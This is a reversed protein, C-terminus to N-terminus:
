KKQKDCRLYNEISKKLEKEITVRDTKNLKPINLPTNGRYGPGHQKRLCNHKKIFKMIETKELISFRNDLLNRLFTDLEIYSYHYKHKSTRIHKMFDVDIYTNNPGRIFESRWPYDKIYEFYLDYLKKAENVKIDCGHSQLKGIFFNPHVKIDAKKYEYFFSFFCYLHYIGNGRSVDDTYIPTYFHLFKREKDRLAIAKKIIQIIDKETFNKKFSSKNLFYGIIFFPHLGKKINTERMISSTDYKTSKDFHYPIEITPIDLLRKVGDFHREPRAQAAFCFFMLYIVILLKYM